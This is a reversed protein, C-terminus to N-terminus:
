AKELGCHMDGDLTAGSDHMETITKWTFITMLSFKTMMKKGRIKVSVVIVVYSLFVRRSKEHRM